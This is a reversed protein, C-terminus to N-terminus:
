SNESYVCSTPQEIEAVRANFGLCEADTNGPKAAGTQIWVTWSGDPGNRCATFGSANDFNLNGAKDIKWGKTQFSEPLPDKTETAYQLVGQGMGSRDTYVRQQKKGTNYLYLEGESLRFVASGSSKGSCTANQKDKPLNLLFGNQAASFTAFHIPSASRLAVLGFTKPTPSSSPKAPGTKCEQAPAAAALGLLSAAFLTKFQM